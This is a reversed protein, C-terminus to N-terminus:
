NSCTEPSMQKAAKCAKAKNDNRCSSEQQLSLLALCTAPIWDDYPSFVHLELRMKRSEEAIGAADKKRERHRAHLIGEEEEAGRTKNRPSQLRISSSISFTVM